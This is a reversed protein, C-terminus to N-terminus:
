VFLQTLLVFNLLFTRDMLFATNAHPNPIQFPSTRARLEAEGYDKSKTKQPNNKVRELNKGKQM